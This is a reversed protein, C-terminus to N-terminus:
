SADRSVGLEDELEETTKPIMNQGSFQSQKRTKAEERDKEELVARRRSWLALKPQMEPIGITTQEVVEPKVLGILTDILEKNNSRYYEIEKKLTECGKCPEYSKGLIFSIFRLVAEGGL